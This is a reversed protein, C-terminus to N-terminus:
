RRLRRAVLEVAAEASAAREVRDTRREDIASGALRESWGPAEVGVVLKGLQWAMAMESLTGSGGGVAIVADATSVVLANRAIGLGSPIVIDAFPNADGPDSGPIIALVDGERHSPAARAGRSAAEMVGGLGGTLVRFGREVLGRGIAEAVALVEPPAAGNGIVAVVRRRM